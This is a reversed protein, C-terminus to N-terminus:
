PADSEASDKTGGDVPSSETKKEIRGFLHGGVPGHQWTGAYRAGDFIVRCSLGEGLGPLRANSLTVVPTDGAWEVPVTVPLTADFNLYRVRATFTWLRDTTKVVSQIEYRETKPLDASEQGDITFRGILVTGSMRESFLRERESLEEAAATSVLLASVAMWRFVSFSM